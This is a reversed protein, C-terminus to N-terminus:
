FEYFKIILYGLVLLFIDYIQIKHAKKLKVKGKPCVTEPFNSYWACDGSSAANTEAARLKPKTKRERVGFLIVM